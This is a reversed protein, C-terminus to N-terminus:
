EGYLHLTERSWGLGLVSISFVELDAYHLTTLGNERAVDGVANSAWDVRVGRVRVEKISGTEDNQFVPTNTYNVDFPEVTWRFCGATSALVLLVALRIAM